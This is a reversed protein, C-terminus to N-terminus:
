PSHNTYAEINGAVKLNEIEINIKTSWLLQNDM